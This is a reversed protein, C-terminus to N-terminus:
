VTTASTRWAFNQHLVGADVRILRRMDSVQAVGDEAIGKDAQQAKSAPFHVDLIVDIVSAHLNSINHDAEQM